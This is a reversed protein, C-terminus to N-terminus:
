AEARFLRPFLRLFIARALLALSMLILLAFFFFWFQKYSPFLAFLTQGAYAQFPLVTDPRPALYDHGPFHIMGRVQNLFSFLAAILFAIGWQVPFYAYSRSQITERVREATAAIPIVLFPTIFFIYRTDMTGGGYYSHHKALLCFAPLFAAAFLFTEARRGSRWLYFYGVLGLWIIPSDRLLGHTSLGFLLGHLGVFLPTSFTEKFSHAWSFSAHFSYATKFPSGFCVANYVLLPLIGVMLGLLVLVFRRVHVFPEVAKQRLSKVLLYAFFAPVLILSVYEVVAGYGLILGLFFYPARSLAPERGVRLVIYTALLVFFAGPVHSFLMTSYRWNLTCFAYVLATLFASTASFGLREAILYVLVVSLTGLLAPLLPAFTNQPYPALFHFVQRAGKVALYFPFALFATGPPRDSYLVDGVRAFDIVVPQRAPNLKFQHDEAMARVLNAHSGDNTGVVRNSSISYFLFLWPAVYYIIRQKMIASPVADLQMFERWCWLGVIAAHPAGDALLEVTTECQFAQSQAGQKALHFNEKCLLVLDPLSFPSKILGSFTPSRGSKRKVVFTREPNFL